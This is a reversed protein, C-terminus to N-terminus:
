QVKTKQRIEHMTLLGGAVGSLTILGIGLMSLHDPVHQFV